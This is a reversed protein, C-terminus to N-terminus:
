EKSKEQVFYVEIKGLYIKWCFDTTVLTKDIHKPRKVLKVKEVKARVRKKTAEYYLILHKLNKKEFKKNNFSSASRWEITKEGSIIQEMYIKKIRLHVDM